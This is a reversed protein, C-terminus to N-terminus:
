GNMDRRIFVWYATGLFVASSLLSTALLLHMNEQNWSEPIGIAISNGIGIAKDYYSSFIYDGLDVDGFRVFVQIPLLCFILGVAVGIATAVSRSLVSVLLAFCVTAAHPIYTLGFAIAFIWLQGGLGPLDMGEDFKTTLPYGAAIPLAVALNALFMLLLYLLGTILKAHLFQSRRIPHPLIMRLSGRSTESALLTAAFVTSFIPIIATSALNLNYSLYVRSSLEGPTAMREVTQKALVAIIASFALGMWPLKLRVAKMLEASILRTIAGM